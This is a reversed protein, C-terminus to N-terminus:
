SAGRGRRRALTIVALAIGAVIAIPILYGLGVIMASVVSLFGDTATSFADGLSPREDTQSLAEVDPESESLAVKLTSISTQANLYRLQGQIQDIELQVRNLQTELSLVSSITTVQDYLGFIVERRSKLIRLRAQYDIFEATVDKGTVSSARVEGLRSVEVFARDFRDAPIRLTLRGTGAGLTESSLLSGGHAEAIAIVEAFTDRLTGEDIKLTLSGDRDIKALDISPGAPQDDKGTSEGAVPAGSNVESGDSLDSAGAPVLAGRDRLEDSAGVEVAAGAESFTGSAPMAADRGRQAVSGVGWALVLVAAAAGSWRLWAGQAPRRRRPGRVVATRAREAADEIDKGLKQLYPIESSM